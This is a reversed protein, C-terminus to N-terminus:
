NLVLESYIWPNIEPRILYSLTTHYMFAALNKITLMYEFCLAKFIFKALKNFAEASILLYISFLLETYVIFM